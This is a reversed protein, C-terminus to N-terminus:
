NQTLQGRNRLVKAIAEICQDLLAQECPHPFSPLGVTRQWFAEAEPCIGDGYEVRRKVYHSDFPVGEAWM